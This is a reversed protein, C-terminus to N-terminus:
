VSVLLTTTGIISIRELPALTGGFHQRGVGAEEIEAPRRGRLSHFDVFSCVTLDNLVLWSYAQYPEEGPNTLVLGSGNLPEWEGDLADGVFGYLGTVGTLDPYFTRAQTSFFLYYRGDRYLLHPRELENNVGDATLLPPLLRLSTPDHGRAIGVAGDFDTTSDPMSATFLVVTEGSRPDTFRFPDRFAKIFGPEGTDQSQTSTYLHDPTLIERHPSWDSITMSSPDLEGVTQIIRQVFSPRAEGPRGAATYLVEMRNGERDYRASGAWERSGAGAHEAFINGHDSWAGARQSVLRIAAVDHREGPLLRSPASLAMWLESGEVVAKDGDDFRVPWLDWLYLGDVVPEVDVATFVATERGRPDLLAIHDRTWATTM